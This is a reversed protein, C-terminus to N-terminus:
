PTESGGERAWTLVGPDFLPLTPCLTVFRVRLCVLASQHLGTCVPCPSTDLNLMIHVCVPWSASMHLAIDWKARTDSPPCDGEGPIHLCLVVHVVIDSISM